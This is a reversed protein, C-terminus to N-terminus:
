MLLFLVWFFWYNLYKKGQAHFTDSATLAFALSPQSLNPHHSSSICTWFLSSLHSLFYFIWSFFFRFSFSLFATFPHLSLTPSPSSLGSCHSSFAEGTLQSPIAAPRGCPWSAPMAPPARCDGLGVLSVSGAPPQRLPAQCQGCLFWKKLLSPELGSGCPSRSTFLPREPAWPADGKQWLIGGGLVVAAEVGAAWDRARQECKWLFMNERAFKTCCVKQQRVEIKIKSATVIGLKAHQCYAYNRCTRILPLAFHKALSLLESFDLPLKHSVVLIGQWM